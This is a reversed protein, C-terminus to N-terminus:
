KNKTERFFFILKKRSVFFNRVQRYHLLRGAEKAERSRRDGHLGCFSCVRRDVKCTIRPRSKWRPEIEPESNNQVVFFLYFYM